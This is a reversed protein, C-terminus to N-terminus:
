GNRETREMPATFANRPTNGASLRRRFYAMRGPHFAAVASTIRRPIGYVVFFRQYGICTVAITRRNGDKEPSISQLM